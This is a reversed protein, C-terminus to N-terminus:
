IVRIIIIYLLYYIILFFMPNPDNTKDSPWIKKQPCFSLYISIFFIFFILNKDLKIMQNKNLFGAAPGSNSLKALQIRGEFWWNIIVATYDDFVSLLGPVVLEGKLVSRLSFITCPRLDHQQGGGGGALAGAM